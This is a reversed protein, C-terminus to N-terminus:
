VEEGAVCHHESERRQAEAPCRCDRQEASYSFLDIIEHALFIVDLLAGIVDDSISDPPTHRANSHQNPLESVILFM